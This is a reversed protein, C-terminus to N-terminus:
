GRKRWRNALKQLGFALGIWLALAGLVTALDAFSPNDLLAFVRDGLVSLVLIGPALGLFTGLTYQWFPIRFAGAVLNVLMFPAVPVLRITAIALIGREGIGRSIRNVRPGVTNRLFRAGLGRGTGYTALASSMSGLAAYLLGPWLGFTGATVIILVTVPFAFFGTVVYAAIIILAAFPNDSIGGLTERLTAPDAYESLPTYRWLLGLAAIFAVLAIGKAMASLRSHGTEGPYDVIDALHEDAGIPRGPDAISEIAGFGESAPKTGDEIQRLRRGKQKRCHEMASFLSRSERLSAFLSEPEGGCHEGLLRSLARVVGEREEDTESEIALDCETDTGMSRNCINASGVRLLRDDVIMVKSHVMVDIENKGEGVSPYLLRVRDAVGADRLANMFRIRGALMTQQELWSEHTKPAVLLVELEPKEKLRAALANAVGLCTLFQNEIYIWREARAISDEFLHEIERTEGEGNGPPLTRAIGINVDRFHPEIGEGWMDAEGAAPELEECAANRWRWRALEGLAAAAEGDVMMQVDHFPRYPDGNHDVRHENAPDHASTDWRRVTLDLGGSFALSNDIVVIKQHHSAGLPVRDDLCLDINHPTGWRLPVAPLFEREKAYIVSYDWLLLKIELGPKESALKTLFDGFLGPYGDDADGEPGVFCTRSDIDWGVILVSQKARLLAARLISFYEAADVLMRARRAHEVRWVNRAPKFIRRDEINAAAEAGSARQVSM